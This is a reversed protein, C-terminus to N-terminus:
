WKKNKKTFLEPRQYFLVFLVQCGLTIGDCMEFLFACGEYGRFSGEVLASLFEFGIECAHDEADFGKLPLERAYCFGKLKRTVFKHPLTKICFLPYPQVLESMHLKNKYKQDIAKIASSVRERLFPLM